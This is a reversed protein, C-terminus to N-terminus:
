TNMLMKVLNPMRKGQVYPDRALDTCHALLLAKRSGPLWHAAPNRFTGSLPM